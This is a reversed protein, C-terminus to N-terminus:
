DTRSFLHRAGNSEKNRAVHPVNCVPAMVPLEEQVIGYVAIQPYFPKSLPRTPIAHGKQIKRDRGIMNM